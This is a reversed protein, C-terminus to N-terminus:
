VTWDQKKDVIHIAYWGSSIIHLMGDATRVRHTGSPRVILGIVKELKINRSPFIYERSDEALETEDDMTVRENCEGYCTSIRIDFKIGLM